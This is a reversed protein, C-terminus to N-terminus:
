MGIERICAVSRRTALFFTTAHRFSDRTLARHNNARAVHSLRLNPRMYGRNQMRARSASCGSLLEDRDVRQQDKRIRSRGNGGLSVSNFSDARTALPGAAAPIGFGSPLRYLNDDYTFQDAIFFDLSNLSNRTIPSDTTMRFDPADALAPSCLAVLAGIIAGRRTISM